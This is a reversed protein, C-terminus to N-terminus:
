GRLKKLWVSQASTPIISQRSHRLCLPMDREVRDRHFIEVFSNFLQISYRSNDQLFARLLYAENWSRGQYVWEKPYEFPYFIDHFHIYVGEQLRPLVEFFVHNVDSHTKVVHSADIFLIDNASLQGFIETDVDQLNRAILTTRARDNDDLM